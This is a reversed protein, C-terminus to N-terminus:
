KIGFCFKHFTKEPERTDERFTTVSVESSLLGDLFAIKHNGSLKSIYKPLTYKIAVKDGVPTGLAVFFRIVNRDFTRINYSHGYEGGETLNIKNSLFPFIELM